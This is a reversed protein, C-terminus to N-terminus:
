KVERRRFLLWGAIVAVACFALSYVCNWKFVDLYGSFDNLYSVDYTGAENMTYTVLNLNGADGLHSAPFWNAIKHLIKKDTLYYVFNLGQPLIYSLFLAFFTGFTSSRINCWVAICVAVQSLWLPISVAFSVLFAKLYFTWTDGGPFMMMTALVLVALVIVAMVLFNILATVLKSFYIQTRTYGFAVVNKMTNHKNEESFVIDSTIIALFFPVMMLCAYLAFMEGRPDVDIISGDSYAMNFSIRMMILFALALVCCILLFIKSYLRKRTKYIEAGIMNLM